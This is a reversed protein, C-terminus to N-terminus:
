LYVNIKPFNQNPDFEGLKIRLERVEAYFQVAKATSTVGLKRVIAHLTAGVTSEEICLLSAIDKNKARAHKWALVQTQRDSLQPIAVAPIRVAGKGLPAPRFRKDVPRPPIASDPLTHHWPEGAVPQWPDMGYEADRARDIAEYFLRDPTHIERPLFEAARRLWSARQHINQFRHYTIGTDTKETAYRM